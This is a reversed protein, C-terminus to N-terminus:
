SKSGNKPDAPKLRVAIVRTKGKEYRPDSEIRERLSREAIRGKAARRGKLRIVNSPRM